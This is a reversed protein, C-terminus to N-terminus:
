LNDLFSKPSMSNLTQTRKVQAERKVLNDFVRNSEQTVAKSKIKTLDLKNKLLLALKVKLEHNKPDRLELIDKDFDTLKEGSPLVWKESTLYDYTERAVKDTVPIGDFEREKLKQGFILNLNNAYQAKQERKAQEAEQAEALKFNMDEREQKVIIEHLDKTEDELDGYDITRQLKKEIKDEPMGQRRYAERFVKKQNDEVSLDLNEMTQLQDFKALYDKPPIGKVFIADFAEVGDEGHKSLIFNYIDSNAKEQTERVFRDRLSEGDKIPNTSDEDREKFIGIKVLEKAIDSFTSHEEAETIADQGSPTLKTVPVPQDDDTPAELSNFIEDATLKEDLEKPQRNVHVDPDLDDDDDEHEIPQVTPKKKLKQVPAISSPDASVSGGGFILDATEDSIVSAQQIGFSQTGGSLFNSGINDM